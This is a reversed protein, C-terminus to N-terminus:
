PNTASTTAGNFKIIVAFEAAGVLPFITADVAGAAHDQVLELSVSWDVLGAIKKKATTAGANKELIEASYNINASKVYASLVVGNISVYPDKIVLEGM